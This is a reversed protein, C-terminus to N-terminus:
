NNNNNEYERTKNHLTYKFYKHNRSNGDIKRFNPFCYAFSLQDRSSGRCIEAWWRENLMNIEPTHRRVIVGCEGMGRNRPYERYRAMQDDITKHNDLNYQKCVEAEDFICDREFHKFVTIQSDDLWENVLDEPRILLSINSDLWISVDADTYLHPLVKHIKANRRPEKFIDCCARIKWGDVFTEEKTEKDLFAIFEANSNVQVSELNDNNQTLSTIVAIKM